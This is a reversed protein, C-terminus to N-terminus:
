GHRWEKEDRADLPRWFVTEPKSTALAIEFPNGTISGYRRLGGVTQGGLIAARRWSTTAVIERTQRNGNPAAPCENRYGTWGYVKLQEAM